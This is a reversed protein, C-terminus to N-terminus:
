NESARLRRLERSRMLFAAEIAAKVHEYILGGADRAEWPLLIPEFIGMLSAACAHAADHVIRTPQYEAV